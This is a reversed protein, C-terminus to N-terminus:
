ILVVDRGLSILFQSWLVPNAYLEDATIFQQHSPDDPQPCCIGRGYLTQSLSSPLRLKWCSTCIKSRGSIPLRWRSVSEGFSIPVM